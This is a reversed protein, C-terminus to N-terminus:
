SLQDPNQNTPPENYDVKEKINNIVTQIMSRLQEEDAETSLLFELTGAVATLASRGASNIIGLRRNSM